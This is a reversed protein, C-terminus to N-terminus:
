GLRRAIAERLMAQDCPKSLMEDVIPVVRDLAKRDAHGTLMLRVTAPFETKVTALLSAGDVGPMRMDSVICDYPRSRLEALAREAGIVFVMDWRKRDRFLV